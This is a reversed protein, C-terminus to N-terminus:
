LNIKNNIYWYVMIYFMKGLIVKIQTRGESNSYHYSPPPPRPHHNYNCFSLGVEQELYWQSFDWRILIETGSSVARCRFWLTIFSFLLCKRPLPNMRFLNLLPALFKWNLIFINTYQLSSHFIEDVYNVLPSHSYKKNLPQYLIFTLCYKHPAFYLLVMGCWQSEKCNITRDKIRM